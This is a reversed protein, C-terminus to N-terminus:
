GHQAIRSIRMEMKEPSPHYIENRKKKCFTQDWRFVAVADMANHIIPNRKALHKPNRIHKPIGQDHYGKNVKKQFINVTKFSQLSVNHNGLSDRQDNINHKWRPLIQSRLVKGSLIKQGLAYFKEVQDVGIGAHAWRQM